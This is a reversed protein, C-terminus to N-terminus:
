QIGEKTKSYVAILHDYIYMENDRMELHGQPGYVGRTVVPIDTKIYFKLAGALDYVALLYHIGNNEKVDDSFVSETVESMLLTVLRNDRDFVYDIVTYNYSSDFREKAAKSADSYPIIINKVGNPLTRTSIGESYLSSILISEGDIDLIPAYSWLEGMPYVEGTVSDLCAYERLDRSYNGVDYIEYRGNASKIVPRQEFVKPLPSYDVVGNGSNYSFDFIVNDRRISATRNQKDMNVVEWSESISFETNFDFSAKANYAKQEEIWTSTVITLGSKNNRELKNVISAGDLTLVSDGEFSVQEGTKFNYTYYKGKSDEHWFRLLGNNYDANSIVVDEGCMIDTDIMDIFRGDKTFRQIELHSNQEEWRDPLYRVEEMREESMPTWPRYLIMFEESAADYWVNHMQYKPQQPTKFELPFDLIEFSDRDYFAIENGYFWCFVDENVFGAGGCVKRVDTDYKGIVYGKESNEPLAIVKGTYLAATYWGFDMDYVRYSDSRNYIAIDGIQDVQSGLRERSVTKAYVKKDQASAELPLNNQKLSDASSASAEIVSASSSSINVSGSATPQGCAIVIVALAILIIWKRKM